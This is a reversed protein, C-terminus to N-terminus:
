PEDRLAMPIRRLYGFPNQPDANLEVTLVGRTDHSHRVMKDMTEQLQHIQNIAYILGARLAELKQDADRETWTKERMARM